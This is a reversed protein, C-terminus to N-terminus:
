VYYEGKKTFDSARLVFNSVIDFNSCKVIMKFIQIKINPNTELKPNRNEFKFM